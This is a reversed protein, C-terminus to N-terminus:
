ARGAKVLAARTREVEGLLRDLSPIRDDREVIVARLNPAKRAVDALLDLASAGVDFAHSDIWLAGDRHGGALHVEVVREWPVHALFDAPDFAGNCADLVLNTLDLLVGADVATVVRKSARGLVAGGEEAHFGLV